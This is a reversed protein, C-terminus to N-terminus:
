LVNLWAEAHKVPIALEFADDKKVLNKLDAIVVDRSSRFHEQLSPEVFAKWDARMQDLDEDKTPEQYFRKEAVDSLSEPEILEPLSGILEALLPHIHRFGVRTKGFTFFEM